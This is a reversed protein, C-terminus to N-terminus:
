EGVATASRITKIRRKGAKARKKINKKTAKADDALRRKADSARWALGPKGETDQAALGVAGLLAVNRTFVARAASRTAQDSGKEPRSALVQPIMTTALLCASPRRFVGLTLGIGGVVQAAGHIRVWTKPNDPLIETVASPALRELMPLTTQTLRQAAAIRPEPNSLARAGDAVFFSGLLGRAAFRLISM